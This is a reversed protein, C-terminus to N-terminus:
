KGGMFQQILKQVEPTNLLKKCAAKNELLTKVKKQDEPGLKKMLNEVTQRNDDANNGM